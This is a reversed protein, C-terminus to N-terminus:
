NINLQNLNLNNMKKTFYYWDNKNSTGRYTYFTNLSYNSNFKKTIHAPYRNLNTNFENSIKNYNNVRNLIIWMCYGFM